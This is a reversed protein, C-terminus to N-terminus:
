NTWRSEWFTNACNNCIWNQLSRIKRINEDNNRNTKCHKVDSYITQSQWFCVGYCGDFMMTRRKMTIMRFVDSQKKAWTVDHSGLFRNAFRNEEFHTGYLMLLQKIILWTNLMLQTMHSISLVWCFMVSCPADCVLQPEARALDADTLMTPESHTCVRWASATLRPSYRFM